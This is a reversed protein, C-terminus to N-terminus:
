SCKGKNSKLVFTIYKRDCDAGEKNSYNLTCMVGNAYTISFYFPYTKDEKDNRVIDIMLIPLEPGHQIIIGSPLTVIIMNNIKLNTELITTSSNDCCKTSGIPIVYIFCVEVLHSCCFGM